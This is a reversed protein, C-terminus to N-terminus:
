SPPCPGGTSVTVVSPCIELARRCALMGPQSGPQCTIQCGALTEQRPCHRQMQCSSPAPELICTVAAHPNEEACPSLKNPPFMGASSEVATAPSCVNGSPESSCPLRAKVRAQRAALPDCKYSCTASTLCGSEVATQVGSAPAQAGVGAVATLLALAVLLGWAARRTSDSSSCRAM